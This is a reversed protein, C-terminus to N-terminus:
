ADLREGVAIAVARRRSDRDLGPLGGAGAGKDVDQAGERGHRRHPEDPRRGTQRAQHLRREGRLQWGRQIAPPGDPQAGDRRQGQWSLESSVM